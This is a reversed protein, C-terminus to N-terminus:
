SPHLAYNWDGHFADRVLNLAHLEADSVPIKTPYANTDAVAAVTLGGATTTRSILEIVTEMSTLPRARWNISIYSFLKHEIKNWKSTGPPLHCVRLTLGTETALGQLEKKWLRGRASNSGGGDAVILLERAAPYSAQGHQRWWRRISEVAFAATDHDQGVNVFGTNRLVDYIGYPIAKGEALSLFDYVNVPVPRGKPQWEQGNNKFTGLLEKKKCDVSIIPQGEEECYTCAEKIHMFQDDRDPASAGEDTKKNAQLTYGHAQLLRRVTTQAVTHGKERLAVQLHSISKTTWKLLSMPDGKPDLLGELDVVLTSDRVSLSKRGGGKSRVRDGEVYAQGGEIEAIGKRITKRSTRAERAVASIGGRGMKQAEVALYMRWQRENLAARMLDFGAPAEHKEM